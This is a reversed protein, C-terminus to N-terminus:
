PKGKQDNKYRWGKIKWLIGGYEGPRVECTRGRTM